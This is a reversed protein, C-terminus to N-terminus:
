EHEVSQVADSRVRQMPWGVPGFGNLGNNLVATEPRLKCVQKRRVSAVTRQM